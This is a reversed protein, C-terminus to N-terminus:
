QPVAIIAERLDSSIGKGIPITNSDCKTYHNM